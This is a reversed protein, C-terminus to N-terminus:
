SKRNCVDMKVPDFPGSIRAAQAPAATSQHKQMLREDTMLLTQLAARSQLQVHVATFGFPIFCPSNHQQEQIVWFRETWAKSRWPMTYTTCWAAHNNEDLHRTERVTVRSFREDSHHGLM